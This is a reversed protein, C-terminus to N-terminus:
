AALHTAYCVKRSSRGAPCTINRRKLWTLCHGTHLGTSTDMPTYLCQTPQAHEMHAHVNIAPQEMRASLHDLLNMAEQLHWRDNIALDHPESQCCKGCRATGNTSLDM